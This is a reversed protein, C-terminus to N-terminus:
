LKALLDAKMKEYEADNLVGQEHLAALKELEQYPDSASRAPVAERAPAAKVDEYPTGDAPRLRGSAINIIDLLWLIGFLGGTLLKLIGMGTYGLYFRDIGLYGMLISLILATTNNKM